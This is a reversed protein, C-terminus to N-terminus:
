QLKCFGSGHRQQHRELQAHFWSFFRRQGVKRLLLGAFAASIALTLLPNGAAMAAVTDRWGALVGARSFRSIINTSSQLVIGDANPGINEDPMVFTDGHWGVSLVALLRKKTYQQAIYRHLEKGHDPNVFLHMRALMKRLELGDGVIMEAPISTKRTTEDKTKFELLVGSNNETADRTM